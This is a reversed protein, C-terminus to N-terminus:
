IAGLHRKKEPDYPMISILSSRRNMIITGTKTQFFLEDGRIAILKAVFSRGNVKYCKCLKNLNSELLDSDGLIKINEFTEKNM